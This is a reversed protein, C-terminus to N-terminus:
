DFLMFEWDGYYSWERFLREWTDDDYFSKCTLQWDLLNARQQENNWTWSEVTIFQNGRTVRNIEGIASRLEFFDLNHLTALSIVLDFYHERFPLAQAPAQLAHGAAMMQDDLAYTSVDVGYVVADPVLKHIEYLLHAKGCGVDLVRAGRQLDYRSILKEAVARWRGDYTYGGYGYKRQGDWYGAEFRKAIKCNNARDPDNRRGAYDRKTATHLPAIIEVRAM